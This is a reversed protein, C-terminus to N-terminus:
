VMWEGNKMLDRVLAEPHRRMEYLELYSVKLPVEDLWV